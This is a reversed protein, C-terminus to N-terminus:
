EKLKITTKNGYESMESLIVSEGESLGYIVEIYDHSRQGLSVNRKEAIGNNIVWLSYVGPGATYFSGDPIRLVDNCIGHLVFLNVNLGIRMSSHDSEKPIVTFEIVGETISPKINAVSGRLETDGIKIITESGLKVKDRLSFAIESDVKFQSLDSIVAIQEGTAVQGGIQDNIMTLIATKPSLVQANQLLRSIEALQKDMISLELEQINLNAKLSKKENVIKQSLQELNMKNEMYALEASRVKEATSAGLDHLYKENKFESLAQEVRMEKLNREMEYNAINNEMQINNQAFNSEKMKREDIKQYYETELTSLELRLLAEGEKVEDGPTKYVELIRSNIPSIIIEEYLPTLKGTARVSIEIDGRDVQGINLLRTSLTEQFLSNLLVFFLIIGTVPIALRLILKKIRRKKESAPIRRDM